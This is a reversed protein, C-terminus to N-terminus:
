GAQVNRTDETSEEVEDHCVGVGAVPAIPKIGFQTEVLEESTDCVCVRIAGLRGLRDGYRLRLSQYRSRLYVTANLLGNLPYMFYGVIFFPFGNGEALRGVLFAGALWTIQNLFVLCYYIAQSTARALYEDNRNRSPVSTFEGRSGVSAVSLTRSQPPATQIQQSARGFVFEQSKKVIRRYALWVMFTMVISSLSAFAILLLVIINLLESISGGRQCRNGGCDYSYETLWCTPTYVLPNFSDTLLGPIATLQPVVIILALWLYRIRKFDNERRLSQKVTLLFYWSLVMNTFATTQNFVVVGYGLASCTAQNGYGIQYGVDKPGGFSQLMAATSVCIDSLSLIMLIQQYVPNVGGNTAKRRKWALKLVVSSALVSVLCSLVNIVTLAIEQGKTFMGNTRHGHPPLETCKQGPTTNHDIFLITKLFSNFSNMRLM